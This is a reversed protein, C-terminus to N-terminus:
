EHVNWKCYLMTESIPIPKKEDFGIRMFNTNWRNQPKEKIMAMSIDLFFNLILIYIEKFVIIM